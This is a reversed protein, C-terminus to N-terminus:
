VDPRAPRSQERLFTNNATHPESWVVHGGLNHDALDLGGFLNPDTAIVRLEGLYGGATRGEHDDLGVLRLYRARVPRDFMFAQDARASKLVGEFVTTFSTGNESVEVRFNRLQQSSSRDT